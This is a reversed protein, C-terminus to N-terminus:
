EKAMIKKIFGPRIMDQYYSFDAIMSYMKMQYQSVLSKNKQHICQDKSFIQKALFEGAQNMVVPHIDKRTLRALDKSYEGTKEIFDGSKEADLLIGIDVDSTQHQREMAYSGFLYVAVVEPRFSFYDAIKHIMENM